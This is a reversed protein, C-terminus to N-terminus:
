DDAVHCAVLRGPEVSRIPPATTACAQPKTEVPCRDRFACGQTPAFASNAPALPVRIRDPEPPFLALQPPTMDLVVRLDPAADAVPERESLGAGSVPVLRFGYTGELQPNQQVDLTVRVIGNKGDHQSWKHWSRGDDRTVWLDVRSIGSPGRQELDFGLDFRPYSIVQARPGEPANTGSWTGSPWCCMM